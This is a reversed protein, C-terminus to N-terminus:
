GSDVLPVLMLLCWLGFCRVGSIAGTAADLGYASGGSLMVAHVQQVLNCPELLDTERTGPAAGRVDVGGGVEQVAGRWVLAM